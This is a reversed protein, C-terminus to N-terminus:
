KEFFDILEETKDDEYFIIQPDGGRTKFNKETKEYIIEEAGIVRNSGQILIPNESLVIKGDKFDYIAKGGTAKNDNFSIAVNGSAEIKELKNEEDFKVKMLDSSLNLKEDVVKVNGKFVALRNEVDFDMNDSNIETPPAAAKTGAISNVTNSNEAAWICLSISITHLIVLAICRSFKSNNTGLCTMVTIIYKLM